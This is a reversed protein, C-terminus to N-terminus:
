LQEPERADSEPTWTYNTLLSDWVEEKNTGSFDDMLLNSLSLVKVGSDPTACVQLFDNFTETNSATASVVKHMKTPREDIPVNSWANLFKHFATKLNM